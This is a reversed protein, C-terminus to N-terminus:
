GPPRKRGFGTQALRAMDLAALAAERGKNLPGSGSRVRAQKATLPTLVGFIVPVGTDLAVQGLGRAAEQALYRDHPTEGRLICGLAVVAHFRRTRALALAAVPLEFSGPVRVVRVNAARVGEDLFTRLCHTLLNETIQSNFQSVVVAFRQGAAARRNRFGRAEAPSLKM